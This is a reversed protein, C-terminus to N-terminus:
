CFSSEGASGEIVAESDSVALKLLEADFWALEGVDVLSNAVEDDSVVVFDVASAVVGPEEALPLVSPELASVDTGKAEDVASFPLVISVVVMESLEVIEADPLSGSIGVDGMEVSPSMGVMLASPESERFLRVEDVANETLMVGGTEEDGLERAEDWGDMSLMDESKAEAVLEVTVESAILGSLAACDVSLLEVSKGVVVRAPGAERVAGIVVM